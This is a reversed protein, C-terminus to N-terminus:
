YRQRVAVAYVMGRIDEDTSVTPGPNVEKLLYNKLPEYEINQRAFKFAAMLIDLDIEQEIYHPDYAPNKLPDTSTVHKFM